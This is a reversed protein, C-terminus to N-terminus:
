SWTHIFYIDHEADYKICDIGGHDPYGKLGVDDFHDLIRKILDTFKIPLPIEIFKIKKNDDKNNAFSLKIKKKSTQFDFLMDKWPMTHINAFKKEVDLNIQNCNDFSAPIWQINDIVENKDKREYVRFYLGSLDDFSISKRPTNMEKKILEEIQDDSFNGGTQQMKLKNQIYKTKYKIYKKRYDIHFEM